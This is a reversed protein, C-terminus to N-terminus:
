GEQTKGPPQRDGSGDMERLLAFYRSFRAEDTEEEQREAEKQKLYPLALSQAERLAEFVRDGLKEADFGPNGAISALSVAYTEKLRLCDRMERYSHRLRM